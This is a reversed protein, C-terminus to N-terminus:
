PGTRYTVSPIGVYMGVYTCYRYVYPYRANFCIDFNLM